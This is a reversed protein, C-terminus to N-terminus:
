EKRTGEPPTKTRDGLPRNRPAPREPFTFKKGQLESWKAAQEPTLVGVLDSRVKERREKSFVKTREEKSAGSKFAAEMEARSAERIEELRQRQEETLRLRDAIDARLLAASGEFQLQLQELRAAQKDDLIMKATEEARKGAEQVKKGFEEGRKRLEDRRKQREEASLDSKSSAGKRLEEFTSGGERFMRQLDAGIDELLGRQESNIGLEERVEPM